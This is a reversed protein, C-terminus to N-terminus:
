GPRDGGKTLGQAAEIGLQGTRQDLISVTGRNMDLQNALTELVQNLVSKFELTSAMSHSIEYLATLEQIKRQSRKQHDVM